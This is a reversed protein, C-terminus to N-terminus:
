AGEGSSGYLSTGLDEYDNNTIIDRRVFSSVSRRLSDWGVSMILDIVGFAGGCIKEEQEARFGPAVQYIKKENRSGKLIVSEYHWINKKLHMYPFYPIGANEAIRAAIENYTSGGGTIEADAFISYLLARPIARFTLFIEGRELLAIVSSITAERSVTETEWCVVDGGSSHLSRMVYRRYGTDPEIIWFPVDYEEFGRVGEGRVLHAARCIADWQGLLWDLGGIEVIMKELVVDIFKGTAGVGINIKRELFALFASNFEALNCPYWPADWFIEHRFPSDRYWEECDSAIHDIDEQDVQYAPVVLPESRREIKSRSVGIRHPRKRSFSPVAVSWIGNESRMTDYPVATEMVTVGFKEQMHKALVRKGLVKPRGGLMYPQEGYDILIADQPIGLARRMAKRLENDRLSEHYYEAMRYFERSDAARM